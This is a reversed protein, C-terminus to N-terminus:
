ISSFALEQQAKEVIEYATMGQAPCDIKSHRLRATVSGKSRPRTLLLSNFHDDLWLEAISSNARESGSLLVAFQGEELYAKVEAEPMIENILEAVKDLFLQTQEHGYEKYFDQFQYIEILMISLKRKNRGSMFIEEEFQHFFSEHNRFGLDAEITFPEDLAPDRFSKSAATQRRSKQKFPIDSKNIGGMLALFPFVLLWILDNWGVTTFVTKIYLQYIMHLGYVGIVFITALLTPYTKRFYGFLGLLIAAIYWLYNTPYVQSTIIFYLSLFLVSVVQLLINAYIREPSKM